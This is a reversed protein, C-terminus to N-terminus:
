QRPQIESALRGFEDRLTPDAGYDLLLQTIEPGAGVVAARHLPTEGIENQWNPDAGQALLLRLADARRAGVAGFIVTSGSVDTLSLDPRLSLLARIITIDVDPQLLAWMLPTEDYHGRANVSVYPLCAEVKELTIDFWFEGSPWYFCIDPETPPPTIAQKLADLVPSSEGHKSTYLAFEDYAYKGDVNPIAPNAGLALMESIMEASGMAAAIHLPTVREYNMDNINAGHALLREIMDMNDRRGAAMHMATYMYDDVAFIDAGAAVLMEFIEGSVPKGVAHALPAVGFYDARNVDAGAQLLLLIVEANAGSLIAQALPTYGNMQQQNVDARAALLAVLMEPQNESLIAMHLLGFGGMDVAAIDAGAELLEALIAPNSNYRAAFMIPTEGQHSGSFVPAAEAGAALLRRVVEPNNAYGAAYDLPSVGEESRTDVLAGLALLASIMEPDANTEAAYHLPTHGRDDPMNVAEPELLALANVASVNGYGAAFHMATAGAEDREEVRRGTCGRVEVAGAREWFDPTLWAECGQARVLSPALSVALIATTIWKMIINGLGFGLGLVSILFEFHGAIDEENHIVLEPM